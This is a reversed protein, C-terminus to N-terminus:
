AVAGLLQDSRAELISLFNNQVSENNGLLKYMREEAPTGGVMATLTKEDQGVRFFRANAQMFTDLSTVPAAWITTTAATLTLSHAMCVPHALLVKYRPTDQFDGFIAARKSAPVDGTVICHDIKNVTLMKSLGNISSKFPAFLIVKRIASDILDLILQLRPVNDLAVTKGERNYVWGLSIQLLKSLIAGANLADIKVSGIMAIATRRMESYIHKQEPTLSAEYYQKTNPPLETVDSLKFRVSPTMCAVAREEAGPKPNWKHMRFPDKDMLQARFITFWRPITAPTIASCPGWVDTVARPCPSGTLGWVWTKSTALERFKETRKSRGDRYVALEDACVANIDKRAILDPLITAVGEHNIIYVDAREDALRKLRRAKDGYLVQFRLWPFEDMLEKAWTREMASIPCIVLIKRVMDRSRLYDFAWLICRTKGTGLENLVYAHTDITLLAATVRQVAFAPKDPDSVPFHYQTLIPAPANYGEERLVITTRRTHPLSLGCSDITVKDRGLRHSLRAILGADQSPIVIRAGDIRTAERVL